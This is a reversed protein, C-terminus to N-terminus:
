GATRGGDVIYEAGTVYSAEDSALFLIVPAVEEPQAARGLPLRQEWAEFAERSGTSGRAQPTDTLGPVVANVRIGDAAYELAATRTLHLIAAKTAGYAAGHPAGRLGSGSSLNVISGGSGESNALMQPIAARCCLFTGRLNTGVTLDWELEGIEHLRGTRPYIAANNVLVDLRGHREVAAAVMAEADAARSIDTAVFSADAGGEALEAALREGGGRNRDALVLRAGERAFLRATALGIGSAAGTVIAVRGDLRGAM